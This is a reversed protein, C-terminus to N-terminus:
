REITLNFKLSAAPGASPSLSGEMQVGQIWLNYM